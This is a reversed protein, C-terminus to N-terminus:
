TDTFFEKIPLFCHHTTRGRSSSDPISALLVHGQEGSTWDCQRLPYQFISVPGVLIWSSRLRGISQAEFSWCAALCRLLDLCFGHSVCHQATGDSRDLTLHVLDLIKAPIWRELMISQQYFTSHQVSAEMLPFHWSSLFWDPSHIPDWKKKIPTENCSFLDFTKLNIFTDACGVRWEVNPIWDNVCWFNGGLAKLLKLPKTSAPTMACWSFNGFIKCQFFAHFSFRVFSRVVCFWVSGMDRVQRKLNDRNIIQIETSPVRANSKCNLAYTHWHIHM